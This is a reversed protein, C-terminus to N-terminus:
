RVVFRAQVPQGAITLSTVIRAGNGVPAAACTASQRFETSKL